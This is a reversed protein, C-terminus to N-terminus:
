NLILPSPQLERLTPKISRPEVVKYTNRNKTVIVKLGDEEVTMTAEFPCFDIRGNRIVDLKSLEDLAAIILERLDIDSFVNHPDDITPNKALGKFTMRGNQVEYVHQMENNESEFIQVLYFSHDKHIRSYLLIDEVLVSTDEETLSMSLMHYNKSRRSKPVSVKFLPCLWKLAQRDNFNNIITETKM